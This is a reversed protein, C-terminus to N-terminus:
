LLDKYCNAAATVAEDKVTLCQIWDRHSLCTVWRVWCFSPGTEDFVLESKKLCQLCVSNRGSDLFNAHLSETGYAHVLSVPANLMIEEAGRGLVRCSAVFDVLEHIRKPADNIHPIDTVPM